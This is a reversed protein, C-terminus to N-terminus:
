LQDPADETKPMREFVDRTATRLLDPNHGGLTLWRLTGWQLTSCAADLTDTILDVDPLAITRFYGPEYENLTVLDFAEIGFWNQGHAAGSAANWLYSWRNEDHQTVNAANRVLKEYGPPKDKPTTPIALSTCRSGLDEIRKDIHATDLAGAILAARHLTFDRHMLRIHRQACELPAPVEVLWLAHAAAELGARALLLSPRPRVENTAEPHLKYPATFDAWLCLHEAAACLYNRVWISAKEWEYFADAQALASGAKPDVARELTLACGRAVYTCQAWRQRHEEPLAFQLPHPRTTSSENDSVSTSYALCACTLPM